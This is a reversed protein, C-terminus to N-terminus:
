DINSDFVDSFTGRAGEIDGLQLQLRGLLGLIDLSESNGIVISKLLEVALSLDSIKVLIVVIKLLITLHQEKTPRFDWSNVPYVMKYLRNISEYHLGKYSPLCNMLLLLNFSIMCGSKRPFIDQYDEYMYDKLDIKL